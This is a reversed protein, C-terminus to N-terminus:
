RWCRTAARGRLPVQAAYVAAFPDGETAAQQSRYAPETILVDAPAVFPGRAKAGPTRPSTSRTKGYLFGADKDIVGFAVRNKRGAVFVSSAMGM